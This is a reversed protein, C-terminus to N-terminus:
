YLRRGEPQRGRRDYGRLHSRVSRFLRRDCPRQGGTKKVLDWEDGFANLAYVFAAEESSGYNDNYPAGIVATKNDISVSDGFNAGEDLNEDSIRIVNDYQASLPFNIFFFAFICFLLVPSKIWSKM